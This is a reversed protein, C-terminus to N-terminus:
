ILLQAVLEVKIILSFTVPFPFILLKPKTNSGKAIPKILFEHWKRLWSIFGFGDRVQECVKEM